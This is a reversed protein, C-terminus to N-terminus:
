PFHVTCLLFLFWTFPVVASLPLVTCSMSIWLMVLKWFLQRLSPVACVVVSPPSPNFQTRTCVQCRFIWPVPLAFAILGGTHSRRFTCERTPLHAACYGAFDPACCTAQETFAHFSVSFSFPGFYSRVFALNVSLQVDVLPSYVMRLVFWLCAVLSVSSVATCARLLCGGDLLAVYGPTRCRVCHASRLGVMCFWRAPVSCLVVPVGSPFLTPIRCGEPVTVAGFM